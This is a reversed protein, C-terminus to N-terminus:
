RTSVRVCMKWRRKDTSKTCIDCQKLDLKSVVDFLDPCKQKVVGVGDKDGAFLIKADRSNHARSYRLSRVSNAMDHCWDKDGFGVYVFGYKGYQGEEVERPLIKWLASGM